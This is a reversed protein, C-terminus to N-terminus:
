DEESDEEESEPSEYEEDNFTRMVCSASIPEDDLEDLAAKLERLKKNDIQIQKRRKAEAFGLWENELAQASTMRKDPNKVVLAGIFKKITDSHRKWHADSFDAKSKNMKELIEEDTEGTYPLKGTVMGYMIIGYSWMDASISAPEFNFLEPARFESNGAVEGIAGVGQSLKRACGFDIIKLEGSKSVMLNDPRIDLHVISKGHIYKLADMAQRTLLALTDETVSVKAATYALIDRGDVFEFILVIYKRVLYGEILKNINGHDVDKIIDYERVGMMKDNEDEYKIFKAAYPLGKGKAACSKVIAFEGRGIEDGWTYFKEPNEVILDSNEAAVNKSVSM